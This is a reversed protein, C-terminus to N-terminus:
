PFGPFPSHKKFFDPSFFQITDQRAWLSFQRIKAISNNKTVRNNAFKGMRLKRNLNGEKSTSKEKQSKRDSVKLANLRLTKQLM